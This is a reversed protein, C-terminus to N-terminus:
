TSSRAPSTRSRVLLMWKRIYGSGSTITTKLRLTETGLKLNLTVPFEHAAWEKDPIV